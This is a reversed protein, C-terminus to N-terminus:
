DGVLRLVLRLLALSLVTLMPLLWVSMLLENDVMALLMVLLKTGDLLLPVVQLLLVVLLVV